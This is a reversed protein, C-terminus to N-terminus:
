LKLPRRLVSWALAAGGLMLLAFTTSLTPDLLPTLLLLLTAAVVFAVEASALRPRARVQANMGDDVREGVILTVSERWRL